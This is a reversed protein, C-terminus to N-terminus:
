QLHVPKGDMEMKNEPSLIGGCPKARGRRDAQPRRIQSNCDVMEMKNVPCDGEVDRGDAESGLTPVWRKGLMQYDFLQFLMPASGDIFLFPKSSAM